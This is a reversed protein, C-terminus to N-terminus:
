SIILELYFKERSIEDLYKKAIKNVKKIRIVDVQNQGYNKRIAPLVMRFHWDSYNKPIKDIILTLRKTHKDYHFEIKDLQLHEPPNHFLHSTCFIIFFYVFSIVINYPRSNKYKFYIFVYIINTVILFETSINPIIILPANINFTIFKKWLKCIIELAWFLFNIKISLITLLYNILTMIIILFIIPTGIITSIISIPSIPMGWYVTFPLVINTLLIQLEILDICYSLLKLLCKKIEIM